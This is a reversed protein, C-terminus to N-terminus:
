NIFGLYKFNHNVHPPIVFDIVLPPHKIPHNVEEGVSGLKVFFKIEVSLLTRKSNNFLEKFTRCNTNNSPPVLLDNPEGRRYCVELKKFIEFFDKEMNM